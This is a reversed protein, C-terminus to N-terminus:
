RNSTRLMPSSGKMLIRYSTPAWGYYECSPTRDGIRQNNPSQLRSSTPPLTLPPLWSGKSTRGTSALDHPTAAKMVQDTVLKSDGQAHLRKAGLESALRLGNVLAGYKAVSNTADFNLHMVYQLKNGLPSTRCDIPHESLVQRSGAPHGAHEGTEM